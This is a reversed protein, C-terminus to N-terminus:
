KTLSVGGRLRPVFVRGAIGHHIKRMFFAATKRVAAKFGDGLLFRVM